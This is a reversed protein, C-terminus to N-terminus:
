NCDNLLGLIRLKGALVEDTFPKMVYENAGASLAKTMQGTDTEATVMMLPVQQYQYRPLRRFAQVFELGNMEPMNWDVLVVALEPLEQQVKDMAERGNGAPLVTYGFQELARGLIMRIARSDDIVLANPM